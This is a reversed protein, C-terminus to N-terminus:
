LVRVAEFLLDLVESSDASLAVDANVASISALERQDVVTMGRTLAGTLEVDVHMSVFEFLDPHTVALLACPDHLPAVGPQTSIKSYANVFADLLEAIFEAQATELRRIRQAFASDVLVTHTVNLGVMRLRAGSNFVISAAEPDAWINFEAVPSMNGFSTSGGMISIGAIRSVFGPDRRIAM